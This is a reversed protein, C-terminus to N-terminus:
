SRTVTTAAGKTLTVDVVVVTDWTSELHQLTPGILSRTTSVFAVAM